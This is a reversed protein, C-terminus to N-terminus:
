IYLFFASNYIDEKRIKWEPSCISRFSSLFGAHLLPEGGGFTVGGGTARFYLDDIKVMDFLADATVM